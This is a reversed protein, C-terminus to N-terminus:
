AADPDSAVPLGHARLCEENVNLLRNLYSICDRAQSLKRNYDAAMVRITHELALIQEADGVTRARREADMLALNRFRIVAM